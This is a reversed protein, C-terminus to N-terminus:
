RELQRGRRASMKRMLCTAIVCALPRNLQLTILRQAACISAQFTTVAQPASRM